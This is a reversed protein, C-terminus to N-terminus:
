LQELTKLWTDFRPCVARLTQLGTDHTVLSGYVVKDYSPIFRHLRKSPASDPGDNVDEPQQSKIDEKLTAIGDLDDKADLLDELADLSALVLAEFEHRQIYPIFRRDNIDNALAEELAKCREETDHTTRLESLSPFDKPLGYLDFLTTVRLGDDHANGLHHVLDRRWHKYHGGGRHNHANRGAIYKGVISTSVYVGLSGLHPRIVEKIFAEETQGEVM